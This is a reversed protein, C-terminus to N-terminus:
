RPQAVGGVELALCNYLNIFKNLVSCLYRKLVEVNDKNGINPFPKM